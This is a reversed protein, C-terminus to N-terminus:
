NQPPMEVREILNGNVRRGGVGSIGIEYCQNTHCAKRLKSNVFPLPFSVPQRHKIPAHSDTIDAILKKHFWFKDDIDEFIEGVNKFTDENFNKYTRYVIRQKIPRPVHLKTSFCIINHFDSIGNDINLTSSVRSKSDTFYCRFSKRERILFCTPDSIMNGLGHTEVVDRICQSERPCLLNINVHLVSVRDNQIVNLISDISRCCQYKFNVNPNYLCMFMWKQRRIIMENVMSEAPEEVLRELDERRRHALDCRIYAMIGGGHENRDARHLKYDPINFQPSPFSNNLNTESIFFVDLLNETLIASMETFKNRISNINLQGM